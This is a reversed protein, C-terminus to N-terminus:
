EVWILTQSDSPIQHRESPWDPALIRGDKRLENAIRGLKSRTIVCSNLVRPWVDQWCLGSQGASKLAEILEKKAYTSGKSIMMSSRDNPVADEGSSFLDHTYTTESRKRAKVVSRAAAQAELTRYQSDRFVELGRVHRSLFILKYLVRDQDVKDVSIVPAYKYNGSLRLSEAALWEIKEERAIGTLTAIESQWRTDGTTTSLWNTLAAILDTGAFRNAFDFMFNVLTESNKRSILNRLLNIEPFGKPDILSFSFSNTPILSVIQDVHDEMRGHLAKIEILPFREVSQVLQKYALNDKEVLFARMRVKRGRRLWFEKQESMHRLAIGFSTDEFTEGAVSQWPGAFGDVYVFEDYISGIRGVLAPIYKDLFTHKVYAQERGIYNAFDIAM